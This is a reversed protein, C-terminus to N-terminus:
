QQTGLFAKVLKEKLRHGAVRIATAEKEGLAATDLAHTIQEGTEGELIRSTWWLWEHETGHKWIWLTLEATGVTIVIYRFQSEYM